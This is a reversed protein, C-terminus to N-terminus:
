SGSESKGGSGIARAVDVAADLTPCHRHKTPQNQATENQPRLKPRKAPNTVAM